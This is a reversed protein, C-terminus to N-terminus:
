KSKKIIGVRQCTELIGYAYIVAEFARVWDKKDIFHRADKVYARMNTTLSKFEPKGLKGTSEIHKIEKELKRLWKMTQRRLEIETLRGAEKQNQQKLETETTPKAETAAPKPKAPIKPEM